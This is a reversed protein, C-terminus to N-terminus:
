KNLKQRIKNATVHWLAVLPSLWFFFPVFFTLIVMVYLFLNWVFELNTKIVKVIEKWMDPSLEAVFSFYTGWLTLWYWGISKTIKWFEGM